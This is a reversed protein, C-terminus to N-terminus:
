IKSLVKHIRHTTIDGPFNYLKRLFKPDIKDIKKKQAKTFNIGQLTRVLYNRKAWNSKADRAIDELKM